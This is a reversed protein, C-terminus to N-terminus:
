NKLESIFLKMKVLFNESKLIMEKCSEETIKSKQQSDVYYQKDIREEKGFLVIRLLEPANFVKDLLIISATHNECKIGVKFLLALLLDYMCYYAESVSNEYLNNQFLIKASRLCNESKAIYSDKIEESPEVLEIVRQKKLKKLFMLEKMKFKYFKHPLFNAKQM